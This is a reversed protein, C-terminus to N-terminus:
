GFYRLNHELSSRLKLSVPTLSLLVYPFKFSSVSKPLILLNLINLVFFLSNHLDNAIIYDIFDLTIILMKFRLLRIVLVKM